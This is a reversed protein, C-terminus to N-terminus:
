ALAVLVAGDGDHVVEGAVGFLRFVQSLLDEQAGVPGPLLVPQTGLERGPKERNGVVQRQVADTGALTLRHYWEVDAIGARQSGPRLLLEHRIRAGAWLLPSLLVPQGLGDAVGQLGEVCALLHRPNDS